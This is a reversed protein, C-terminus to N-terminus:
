PIQLICLVYLNEKVAAVHLRQLKKVELTTQQQSNRFESDAQSIIRTVSKQFMYNWICHLCLGQLTALASALKRSSRNRLRMTEETFDLCIEQAKKKFNFYTTQTFHPVFVTIWPSHRLRNPYDIMKRDQILTGDCDAVLNRFSLNRSKM